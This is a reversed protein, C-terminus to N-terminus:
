STTRLVAPAPPLKGASDFSRAISLNFPQRDHQAIVGVADGDVGSFRENPMAEGRGGNDFQHGGNDLHLVAKDVRRDVERM